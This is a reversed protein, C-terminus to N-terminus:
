IDSVNKAKERDRTSTCNVKVDFETAADVVELNENTPWIMAISMRSTTTIEAKDSPIKNELFVRTSYAVKRM